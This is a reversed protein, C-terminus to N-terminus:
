PSSLLRYVDRAIYYISSNFRVHDGTQFTVVPSAVNVLLASWLLLGMWQPRARWLWVAAIFALPLGFSVVRTLDGVPLAALLIPGCMVLVRGLEERREAVGWGCCVGAAVVLWMARLAYFVGHYFGGVNDILRITGQALAEVLSHGLSVMLWNALVAWIAMAGVVGGARMWFLRRREEPADTMIWHWMLILGGASVCREDAFMGVGLLLGILWWRGTLMSLMVFLTALSDQYGTWVNNVVHPHITALAVTFLFAHKAPIVRRILLYGAALVPIPMLWSMVASGIPGLGIVWAIVPTLVRYRYQLEDAQLQAGFPAAVLLRQIEHFRHSVFTLESHFGAFAVMAAPVVILQLLVFGAVAAGLAVGIRGFRREIRSILEGEQAVAELGATHM